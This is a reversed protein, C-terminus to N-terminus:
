EDGGGEDAKKEPTAAPAAGQGLVRALRDKPIYALAPGEHEATLVTHIDRAYQNWPNRPIEGMIRGLEKRGKVLEAENRDIEVPVDDDTRLMSEDKARQVPDPRPERTGEKWPHYPEPSGLCGAVLLLPSLLLVSPRVRAM